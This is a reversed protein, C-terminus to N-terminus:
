RYLFHWCNPMSCRLAAPYRFIASEWSRCIRSDKATHFSEGHRYVARAPYQERSFDALLELQLLAGLQNCAHVFVLEHKLGPHLSKPFDLFKEGPAPRGTREPRLFDYSIATPFSAALAIISYMKSEVARM